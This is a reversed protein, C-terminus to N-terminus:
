EEALSLFADRYRWGAEGDPIIETLDIRQETINVVQGHDSGLYNGEQVRYILGDPAKVLAWLEGQANSFTGMMQLSGLSYKELEERPRNPDPRIGSDITEVSSLDEEPFTQPQAFRSVVFPDKLGQATYTFPRYPDIEPPPELKKGMSSDKADAVYEQLDELEPDGCGALLFTVLLLTVAQPRILPNQLYFRGRNM